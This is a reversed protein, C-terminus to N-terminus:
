QAGGLQYAAGANGQSSDIQYDVPPVAHGRLAQARAQGYPRYPGPTGASYAASWNSSPAQASALSPVVVVALLVASALIKTRNSMPSEKKQQVPGIAGIRDVPSYFAYRTSARYIAGPLVILVAPFRCPAKVRAFCDVRGGRKMAITRCHFQVLQPSENRQVLNRM